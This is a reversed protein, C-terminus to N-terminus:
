RRKGSSRKSMGKKGGASKMPFAPVFPSMMKAKGSGTKKMGGMKAM